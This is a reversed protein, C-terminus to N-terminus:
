IGKTMNPLMFIEKYDKGYKKRIKQWFPDNALKGGSSNHATANRAIRGNCKSCMRVNIHGVDWTYRSCLMCWGYIKSSLVTLVIDPSHKKLCAKCVDIMRAGVLNKQECGYCLGERFKNIRQYEDQQHKEWLKKSADNNNSERRIFDINDIDRTQDFSM